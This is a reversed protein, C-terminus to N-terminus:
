LNELYYGVEYPHIFIVETQNIKEKGRYEMNVIIGYKPKFQSLFSRFSRSIRGKPVRWKVEIPIIKNEKEVVFDMELGNKTRWFHLRHKKEHLLLEKYISNELLLGIDIRNKIEQLQSIVSNRLGNDLFYCKPMKVIETRSNRHYPLLKGLIFTQELIYLYREVTERDIRAQISLEQINVLQGIQGALLKILTHFGILNKIELFGRIDKEMYSTMIEELIESKEKKESTTAVQPYGGFILSEEYVKLLEKRQFNLLKEPRLIAKALEPNKSKAYEHFSFPYIYFIRKRGAMSEVFKSRIELSSSGTLIFKVNLKADHIGKFFRGAEPIRQAEDILVYLRSKEAKQKLFEIFDTQDNVREYDKFIDLNFVFINEEKTKKKELLHNKLLELLVTKGAQRPGIMVTIEKKELHKALEPFINREIYQQKM